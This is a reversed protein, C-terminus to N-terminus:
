CNGQNDSRATEESARTSLYMRWCVDQCQFATRHLSAASELASKVHDQNGHSQPLLGPMWPMGNYRTIVASCLSQAQPRHVSQNGLRLLPQLTPSTWPHVAPSWLSIAPSLPPFPNSSNASPSWGAADLCSLSCLLTCFFHIYLFSYIWWMELNLLLEPFDTVQHHLMTIVSKMETIMKELKPVAPHHHKKSVNSLWDFHDKYLKLDAHLQSLTPKLQCFCLCMVYSDSCPHPLINWPYFPELEGAGYACLHLWMRLVILPLMVELNHLDTALRNSM